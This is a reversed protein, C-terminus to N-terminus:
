LFLINNRSNKFASQINVSLILIPIRPNLMAKTHTFTVFLKGAKRPSVSM